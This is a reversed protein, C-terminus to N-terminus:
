LKIFKRVEVGNVKVFYIGSPLASVDVQVQPSNCHNTYVTQGLLNTIGITTIRDSASITLSTSTPNPYLIISGGVTSLNPARETACNCGLNPNYKAVFMNENSGSIHHLTDNGLILTPRSDAAMYINGDCDAVMAANDDGGAVLPYVQLLTGSPSFSSFLMNDGGGSIILDTDSIRNTGPMLGGTVWVNGCPDTAMEYVTTAQSGSSIASSSVPYMFKAWLPTGSTDYKAIFSGWWLNINSFSYGGFTMMTDDVRGGVYINNNIDLAIGNVMGNGSPNRAWVANGSTDLEVLFPDSKGWQLSGNLSLSHTGFTITSSSFQGILYLKNNSGMLLREAHNDGIGNFTKGWIFNGSSDYKVLIINGSDNPANINSFVHSGIVMAAEDFSVDVYVNKAEDVAIGGISLAEGKEEVNGGCTTWVVNGFPNGKLIVYCHNKSLWGGVIYNPNTITNTGFTVSDTFLMALVYLNGEADTTITMPGCQGNSSSLGWLINGVTDYKAIFTQVSDALNHFVYPHLCVSDGLNDGVIYIGPLSSSKDMGIMGLDSGWSDSCTSQKAWVWNQANATHTAFVPLLLLILLLRKM